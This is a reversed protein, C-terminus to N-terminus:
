AANLQQELDHLVKITAIKKEHILSLLQDYRPNGTVIVGLSALNDNM